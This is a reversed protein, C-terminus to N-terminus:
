ELEEKLLDFEEQTLETGTLQVIYYDNYFDVLTSSMLAGIDVKKEKIIELAKVKKENEKLETELYLYCDWSKITSIKYHSFIEYRKILEDLAELSKNMTNEKRLYMCKM